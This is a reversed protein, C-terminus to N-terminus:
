RAPRSGRSTRRRDPAHEAPELPPAGVRPRDGLEHLLELVVCSATRRSAILNRPSAPRPAASAIGASSRNRSSGLAATRLCASAALSCILAPEAGPGLNLSVRRCPGARRERGPVEPLSAPSGHSRGRAQLPRRGLSGRGPSTVGHLDHHLLEGRHGQDHEEDDGGVRLDPCRAARRGSRLGGSPPHGAAVRLLELHQDEGAVVHVVPTGDGLGEARRQLRRPPELDPHVLLGDAAVLPREVAVVRDDQVEGVVRADEPGRPRLLGSTGQQPDEVPALADDGEVAGQARVGVPGLVLHHDPPGPALPRPM